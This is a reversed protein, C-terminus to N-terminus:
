TQGNISKSRVASQNTVALSSVVVGFSAECSVVTSNETDMSEPSLMSVQLQSPSPPPTLLLTLPLSMAPLSYPRSRISFQRSSFELLLLESHSSSMVSIVQISSNLKM